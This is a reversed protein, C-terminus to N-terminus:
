SPNLAVACSNWATNALHTASFIVSAAGPADGAVIAGNYSGGALNWHQTQNYASWTDNTVDNFAQV